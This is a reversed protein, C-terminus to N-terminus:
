DPFGAASAHADEDLLRVMSELGEEQAKQTMAVRV